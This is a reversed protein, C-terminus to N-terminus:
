KRTRVLFLIRMTASLSVKSGHNSSNSDFFGSSKGPYGSIKGYGHACLSAYKVSDGKFDWVFFRRKGSHISFDVLFCYNTNFGKEVCYTKAALAKERLPQEAKAVIGINLGVLTFLILASKKMFNHMTYYQRIVALYFDCLYM